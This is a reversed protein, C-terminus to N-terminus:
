AVSLNITDARAEAWGSRTLLRATLEFLSSDREVRHWDDRHRERLVVDDEEERVQWGDHDAAVIFRHVHGSRIFCRDIIM